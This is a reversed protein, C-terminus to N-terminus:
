SSQAEVAEGAVALIQKKRLAQAGLTAGLAECDTRVAKRDHERAESGARLSMEGVKVHLVLM